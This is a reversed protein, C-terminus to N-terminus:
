ILRNKLARDVMKKSIKTLKRPGVRMMAESIPYEIESSIFLLRRKKRDDTM